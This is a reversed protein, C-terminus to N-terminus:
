AIYFCLYACIFTINISLVHDRIIRKLWFSMVAGFVVGLLPGGLSVRMFNVLVGDLSSGNGKALDMFLMFFVM